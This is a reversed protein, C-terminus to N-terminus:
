DPVDVTLYAVGVLCLGGLPLGLLCLAIVLFGVDPLPSGQATHETIGYLITGCGAITGAGAFLAVAKCVWVLAGNFSM